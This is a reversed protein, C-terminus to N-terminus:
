VANRSKLEEYFEEAIHINRHIGWHGLGNNIDAARHFLINDKHELHCKIAGTPDNHFECNKDGVFCNCIKLLDQHTEFDFQWENSKLYLYNKYFDPNINKYHNYIDEYNEWISWLLIIKNTKCYQELMSIFTHGYFMAVEPSLVEEADFPRKAYKSIPGPKLNCNQILTENEIPRNIYRRGLNNGMFTPIPMRYLPFLGVIVKPHGYTKFYHFAKTVQGVMSDGGLSLNVHKANMKNALLNAWMFDETMGDGMTYSCGLIMLDEDGVFEPSRYGLSNYNYEIPIIDDQIRTSVKFENFFILESKYADVNFVYKENKM